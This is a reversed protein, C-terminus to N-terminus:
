KSNTALFKCDNQVKRQQETGYIGLRIIHGLNLIFDVHRRIYHSMVKLRVCGKDAFPACSISVLM